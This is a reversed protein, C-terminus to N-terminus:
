DALPHPVAPFPIRDSRHGQRRGEAM